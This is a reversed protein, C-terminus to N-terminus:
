FQSCLCRRSPSGEERRPASLSGGARVHTVLRLCRVRAPAGVSRRTRRSRPRWFHLPRRCTGTDGSPWHACWSRVAATPRWPRRSPSFMSSSFAPPDPVAAYLARRRRRAAVPQPQAGFNGGPGPPGPARNRLAPPVYTQRSPSLRTLSHPTNGPPTTAERCSVKHSKVPPGVGAQVRRPNPWAAVVAPEAWPRAPLRNPARAPATRPPAPPRRRAAPALAVAVRRCAGQVRGDRTQARAKASCGARSPAGTAAPCRSRRGM